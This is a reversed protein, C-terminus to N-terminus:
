HLCQNTSMQALEDKLEMNEELLKQHGKMKRQWCEMEWHLIQNEEKYSDRELVLKQIAVYGEEKEYKEYNLQDYNVDEFCINFWATIGQIAYRAASQNAEKVTPYSTNSVFSRWSSFDEPDLKLMIFSYVTGDAMHHRRFTAKELGKSKRLRNLEKVYDM